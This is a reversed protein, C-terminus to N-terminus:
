SANSSELLTNVIQPLLSIDDALKAMSDVFTEGHKTVANTFYTGEKKQLSTLMKDYLEKSTVLGDESTQPIPLMAVGNTQSMYCIRDSYDDMQGMCILLDPPYEDLLVEIRIRKADSESARYSNHWTPIPDYSVMLDSEPTKKAILMDLTAATVYEKQIGPTPCIIRREFLMIEQLAIVLDDGDDPSLYTGLSGILIINKRKTM